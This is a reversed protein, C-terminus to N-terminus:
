HFRGAKTKETKENGFVLRVYGDEYTVNVARCLNSAMPPIEALVGSV